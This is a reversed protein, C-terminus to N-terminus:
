CWKDPQWQWRRGPITLDAKRIQEIRDAAEARWPADPEFGGYQDNNTQNPLDDVSLSNGYNVIAMGGIEIVQQQWALHLGATLGDPSYTQNADFPIFYQTWQAPPNFTLYIEKEFTMSNEVFISVQGNGGAESRLWLVLLAADGNNMQQVNRIGYGADWQNNGAANVQFRVKQSFPQGTVAEDSSNMNGYAFDSNLNAAESDNLVWTGAPLNYDNQLINQLDTHYADQATATLAM